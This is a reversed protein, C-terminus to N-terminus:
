GPPPRRPSPSAPSSSCRRSTPSTSRASRSSSPTAITRSTPCASAGRTRSVRHLPGVAQRRHRRLRRLARRRGRAPLEALVDSCAPRTTSRTSGSRPRGEIPELGLEDARDEDMFSAFLDGIKRAESGPPHTPERRGGRHDRPPRGREKRAARLVLRLAVSRGPDRDQAIWGGNVHRFFDDQPRVATDIATASQHGFPRGQCRRRDAALAPPQSSALSSCLDVSSPSDLSLM